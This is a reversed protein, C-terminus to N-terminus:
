TIIKGGNVMKKGVKALLQPISMRYLDTLAFSGQHSYIYEFVPQSAKTAIVRATKSIPHNFYTDGAISLFKLLQDDFETPIM